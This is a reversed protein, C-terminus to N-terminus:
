GARGSVASVARGVAARLRVGLSPRELRECAACMPRGEVFCWGASKAAKQALDIRYPQAVRPGDTGCHSCVAVTFQGDGDEFVSYTWTRRDDMTFDNVRAESTPGQTTRTGAAAPPRRGTLGVRRADNAYLDARAQHVPAVHAVGARACAAAQIARSTTQAARRQAVTKGRTM